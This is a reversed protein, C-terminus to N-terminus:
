AFATLHAADVHNLTDGPHEPVDWLAPPGFLGAGRAVTDVGIV